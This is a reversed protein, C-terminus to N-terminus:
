RQTLKMFRPNARLSDFNPTDRLTAGSIGGAVAKELADIAHQTDGLQEYTIGANFLLAPNKPSVGLAGELKDLTPKREGRMPHYMTLSRLVEADRPDVRLEENGM